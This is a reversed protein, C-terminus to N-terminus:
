KSSEEGHIYSCKKQYYMHDMSDYTKGLEKGLEKKAETITGLRKKKDNLVERIKPYEWQSDDQELLDGFIREKNIKRHLLNHCRTCMTILNDLSNNKEEKPVPLGNEDKHHISLQRNFMVICKEQSMGCEQCTWNDRELALERNGNFLFNDQSERQKDRNKRGWERHQKLIIDKNTIDYCKRCLNTAHTGTKKCRMCIDNKGM